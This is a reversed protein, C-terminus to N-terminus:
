YMKESAGPLLLGHLVRRHHVRPIEPYAENGDSNGSAGAILHMVM